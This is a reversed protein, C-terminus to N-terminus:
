RFQIRGKRRSPSARKQKGPKTRSAGDADSAEAQYKRENVKEKTRDSSDRSKDHEELAKRAGQVQEHILPATETVRSPSRLFRWAKNVTAQQLVEKAARLEKDKTGTEGKRQNSREEKDNLTNQLYRSPDHDHKSFFRPARIAVQFIFTLQAVSQPQSSQSAIRLVVSPRDSFLHKQMQLAKFSTCMGGPGLSSM